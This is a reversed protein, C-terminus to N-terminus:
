LTKTWQYVNKSCILFLLIFWILKIEKNMKDQFCYLGCLFGWIGFYQYQESARQVPIEQPIAMTRQNNQQLPM